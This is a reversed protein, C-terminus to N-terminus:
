NEFLENIREPPRALIARDGIEVIPRQILDPQLVLLDLIEEESYKKNKLDLSKYMQDNKRLIEHASIKMKHLLSNLKKKSFPQDYYDIRDYKIGKESLIKNLKRCTTCTSKEYVIIKEM